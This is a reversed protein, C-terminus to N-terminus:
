TKIRIQDPMINKNRMELPSVGYEKKFNRIFTQVSNFGCAESVDICKMKTSMLLSVAYNLRLKRIYTTLNMGIESSFMSSLYKKSIYFMSSISELTINECFNQNIYMIVEKLRKDYKETYGCESFEINEAFFCLLSSLLLKIISVNFTCEQQCCREILFYMDKLIEFKEEDLHVIMNQATYISYGFMEMPFLMSPIAILYMVAENNVEIEHIESPRLLFVDCSRFPHSVGNIIHTGKGKIVMALEYYSHSRIDKKCFYYRDCKIRNEDLKVNNEINHYKM